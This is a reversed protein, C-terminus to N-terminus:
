EAQLLPSGVPLATTIVGHTCSSTVERGSVVLRLAVTNREGGMMLPPFHGSSALAWQLPAVWFLYRWGGGM